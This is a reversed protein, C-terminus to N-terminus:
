ARSACPHLRAADVHEVLRGGAQVQGVERLQEAQEIPQDVGALRHDHDLVVLRHHRVGVPDDVEPGAGPWSPPRITNSPVGASRTAVADVSVPSCRAAKTPRRGFATRDRQPVGSPRIARRRGGWGSSRANSASRIGAAVACNPSTAPKRAIIAATSGTRDRGTSWANVRRTHASRWPARRTRPSTAGPRVVRPAMSADGPLTPWPRGAPLARTRTSDAAAVASPPM